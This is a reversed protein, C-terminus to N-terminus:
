VTRGVWLVRGVVTVEAAPVDPFSPFAPNDSLVAMQGRGPEVRKVMLEGAMRVVYLGAKAARAGAEVLLEDGDLLTPAMSDGRVRITSLTGAAAGAFQRLWDPALELEGLRGEGDVEAGPGASAAVALRPVRVGARPPPAGLQAESLGLFDALRRRDREDLRAPSGRTVFQQLYADNRGIMRSLAALSVGREGAARKLEGRAEM